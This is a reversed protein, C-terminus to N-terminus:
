GVFGVGNVGFVLTNSIITEFSKLSIMTTVTLVKFYLNLFLLEPQGSSLSVGSSHTCRFMYIPISVARCITYSKVGEEMLSGQPISINPMAFTNNHSENLAM